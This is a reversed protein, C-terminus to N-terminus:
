VSAGPPIFKAPRLSAWASRPGGQPNTGEVAEQNAAFEHAQIADPIKVEVITRDGATVTAPNTALEAIAEAIEAATPM